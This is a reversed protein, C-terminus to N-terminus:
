RASRLACKAHKLAARTRDGVVGDVALGYDYQFAEVAWRTRDGFDGDVPLEGDIDRYGIQNLLRQLQRVPEGHAGHRLLERLAHHHQPRLAANGDM